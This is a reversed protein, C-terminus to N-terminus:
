KEDANIRGGQLLNAFETLQAANLDSLAWYELGAQTWHVLHFGNRDLQKVSSQDAGSAPWCYLNIVHKRRGYVLAAVPRHDIFDLRGGILPFGEAGLDNVVPAYDLKGNFWPKVEHRDSSAVDALHDVQLSRVHSDVLQDVMVLATDRHRNRQLLGIFALLLVAAAALGLMRRPKFRRMPRPQEVRRLERQISERLAIPARYYPAADAVVRRLSQQQEYTGRCASCAQLHSEMEISHVADLEGDLLGHMLQQTQQCDV